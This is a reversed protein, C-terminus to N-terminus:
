EKELKKIQENLKEREENLIIIEKEQSEITDIHRLYVRYVMQKIKLRLVKISKFIDAPNDFIIFSVSLFLILGVQNFNLVTDINKFYLYIWINISLYVTVILIRACLYTKNVFNDLAAKLGRKKEIQLSLKAIRQDIWKKRKNDKAEKYVHTFDAKGLSLCYVVIIILVIIILLIWLWKNSRKEKM